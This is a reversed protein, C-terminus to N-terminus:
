SAKELSTLLMVLAQIRERETRLEDRVRELRAREARLAAIQDEYSM